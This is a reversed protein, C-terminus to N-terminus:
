HIVAWRLFNTPLGLRRTQLVEEWIGRLQKEVENRPECHTKPNGCIEPAPLATRDVKGNPSLPLQQLSVVYGPVM